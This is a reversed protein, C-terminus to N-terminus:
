LMYRLKVKQESQGAGVSFRADDYKPPGFRIVPNRSFGFGERPMIAMKDLKGNGNEDHFASLAYQGPPIGRFHAIGDRAPILMKRAAPDDKCDPFYRANQTLCVRVSGKGSRLNEFRVTLDSGAPAAAALSPALLALIALRM